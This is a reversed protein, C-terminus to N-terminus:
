QHHGSLGTADSSVAHHATLGAARVRLLSGIYTLHTYLLPAEISQLTERCPPPGLRPMPVRSFLDAGIRAEEVNARCVVGQPKDIAIDRFRKEDGSSCLTALATGDAQRQLEVAAILAKV